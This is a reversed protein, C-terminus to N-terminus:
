DLTLSVDAFVCPTGSQRSRVMLHASVLSKTGRPSRAQPTRFANRAFAVTRETPQHSANRGDTRRESDLAPWFSTLSSSRLWASRHRERKVRRVARANNQERHVARHSSLSSTHRSRYLGGQSDCNVTVTRRCHSRFHATLGDEHLSGDKRTPDTKGSRKSM